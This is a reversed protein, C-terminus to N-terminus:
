AIFWYPFLYSGVWPRSVRTVRSFRWGPQESAVNCYVWVDLAAGGRPITNQRSTFYGTGLNASSQTIEGSSENYTWIALAPVAWAHTYTHCLAFGELTVGPNSPWAQAPESMGAVLAGAAATTAGAVALRRLRRPEGGARRSQARPPNSRTSM